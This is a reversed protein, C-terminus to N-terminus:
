GNWNEISTTQTNLARDRWGRGAEPRDVQHLSIDTDKSRSILPGEEEEEEEIRVEDLHPSLVKTKDQPRRGSSTDFCHRKNTLIGTAVITKKEYQCRKKEREGGEWSSVWVM